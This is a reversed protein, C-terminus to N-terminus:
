AVAHLRRVYAHQTKSRAYGLAPYFAHAESRLVNSRLFVERLGRSAAWAEVAAVLARGVGGRRAEASVALAVIEAREGSDLSFRHEAAAFGQLVGPTGDIVLVAHVPSDLLRALRQAFAEEPAPYGLQASLRALEAADAPVAPRPPSM